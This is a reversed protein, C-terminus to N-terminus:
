STAEVCKASITSQKDRAAYIGPMSLFEVDSVGFRAPAASLFMFQGDGKAWLILMSRVYADCSYFFLYFHSVAWNIGDLRLPMFSQSFLFRSTESAVSGNRLYSAQRVWLM